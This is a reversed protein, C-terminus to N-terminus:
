GYWYGRTFLIIGMTGVCVSFTYYLTQKLKSMGPIIVLLPFLTLFFRPMSGLSGTAIPLALNLSLYLWYALDLKRNKLLGLFLVIATITTIVEFVVVLHTLDPVFNVSIAKLYSVMTTIPSSAVAKGWAGQAHFWALPDGTKQWLYFMYAFLGASSYLTYLITYLSSQKSKIMKVFLFVVLFIGNVRTATSLATSLVARGWWKKESFYMTMAALAIFLPETYISALFIAGTSILLLFRIDPLKLERCWKSVYVLALYLSLQSIIMGSLYYDRILASLLHILVPLLPFFAYQPFTNRVQYGFKAISLYHEGDFNAFSWFIFNSQWFNAIFELPAFHQPLIFYGLTAFVRVIVNWGILIILSKGWISNFFKIIKDM